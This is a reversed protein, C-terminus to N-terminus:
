PDPILGCILIECLNYFRVLGDIKDHRDAEICKAIDEGAWQRAPAWYNDEEAKHLIGLLFQRHKEMFDSVQRTRKLDGSRLEMVQNLLGRYHEAYQEAVRCYNRLRALAEERTHQLIDDHSLVSEEKRHLSVPTPDAFHLRLTHATM